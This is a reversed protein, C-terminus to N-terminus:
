QTCKIVRVKWGRMEYLGCLAAFREAERRTDWERRLRRSVTFGTDDNKHWGGPLGGRDIYIAYKTM